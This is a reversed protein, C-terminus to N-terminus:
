SSKFAAVGHPTGLGSPGDYGRRANCLYMPSCTGDSGITVDYLDPRHAYPYSNPYTGAAPRGALAYVSAIIPSSVSTGGVELWGGQTYTDYIAVGTNPDAVAAVDNDTRKSCRHDTQFTPKREYASCGAGAGAWVTETFGRATSSKELSTGGVATVYRSAAPYAVGYGDQGDAATIAVGPHKYYKKDLTTESSSEPFGYSNSVYKAGAAVAANVATGLDSQSASNAEVLLIHCKPCIASVMDVDLSEEVDWGTSGAPSPLPSGKGHENIKKFCGSTSTCPSLGWASRYTALDGAANPDDYADILAVITRGGHKAAATALGYASQLSAPGYGDGVPATGAALAAKRRPGSNTRV